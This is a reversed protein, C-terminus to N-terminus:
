ILNFVFANNMHKREEEKKGIFKAPLILSLTKPCMKETERNKKKM